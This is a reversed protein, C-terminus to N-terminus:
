STHFSLLDGLIEYGYDAMLHQLQNMVANAIETKSAFVHDLELRPVTSRIVTIVVYDTYTVVNNIFVLSIIAGDFM